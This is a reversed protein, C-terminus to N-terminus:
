QFPFRNLISSGLRQGFGGFKTEELRRGTKTKEITVPYVIPPDWFIGGIYWKLSVIFPAIGDGQWCAAILIKLLELIRAAKLLISEPGRKIVLISNRFNCRVKLSVPWVGICNPSQSQDATKHFVKSELVIYGKFHRRIRQTYEVDDSWIFMEKQPFGCSRVAERRFLVSVFSCSKIPLIKDFVMIGLDAGAYDLVPLNLPHAKCSSDEVLSCLFGTTEDAFLRQNVLAELAGPSPITDDDMCWIWDAGNEYAKQIGTFQGGSSGTNCQTFVTLGAESALWESTGDTSLNDIVYISTPEYTQRRISTICEKLLELRNHTVVVAIVITM